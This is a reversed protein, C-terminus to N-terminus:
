NGGLSHTARYILMAAEARTLEGKPRFTKDDYGSILKKDYAILIDDALDKSIQDADNFLSDLRKLDAEQKQYGKAMVLAHAVDERNANESGKFYMWESQSYGPMCNKVAEIYKYSWRNKPVDAYSQNQPEDVPLNMSLVMIKAFEERTIKGDPRFTGDTYGSIVNNKALEAIANYAWHNASVDKFSVRNANDQVASKIKFYSGEIRKWEAQLINEDDSNLVTYLVRYGIAYVQGQQYQAADGFDSIQVSLSSTEIRKQFVTDWNEGSAPKELICVDIGYYLYNGSEDVGTVNVTAKSFVSGTEQGNIDCTIFEIPAGAYSATSTMLCLTLLILISIYKRKM